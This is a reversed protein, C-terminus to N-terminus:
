TGPKPTQTTKRPPDPCPQTGRRAHAPDLGATLGGRLPKAKVNGLGTRPHPARLRNDTNPATNELTQTSTHARRTRAGNMGEGGVNPPM